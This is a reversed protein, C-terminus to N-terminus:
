HQDLSSLIFHGPDASCNKIATNQTKVVGCHDCAQLLASENMPNRVTVWTHQNVAAPYYRQNNSHLM